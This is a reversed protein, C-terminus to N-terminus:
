MGQGTLLKLKNEVREYFEENKGMLDHVELAHEWSEIAKTVNDTALYADGLHELIVPDDKVIGHAKKLIRLAKKHKGMKYYVWGLSDTIYGNGPKLSLSEKILDLADDLNIGKEAYNYGLFNMAEAHKADLALTRKLPTVMMEFEGAQEHYISKVFHMEAHGDFHELGQTLVRLADEDRGAALYNRALYVFYDPVEQTLSILKEYAQAAKDKQDLVSYLYGMNLLVKTNDPERENMILYQELAEEYREMENLALALYYRFEMDDPELALVEQFKALAEEYREMNMYILGLKRPPDPNDPELASLMDEMGIAKETKGTDMYLQSLKEIVSTNTPDIDMAKLYYQEAKRNKGKHQAIVGLYLYSADLKPNIEISHKFAKESAKAENLGIALVGIYYYGSAKLHSDNVDAITDGAKGFEGTSAFLISLQLRINDNDPESAIVKEYLEIAEAPRKQNNLIQALVTMARTDEPELSLAERALIEAEELRELKQLVGALQTRVYATNRDTIVVRTYEEVATALDGSLEAQYGLMFHYYTSSSRAEELHASMNASGKLSPVGGSGHGHEDQAMAPSCLLTALVAIFAM